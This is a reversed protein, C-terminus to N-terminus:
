RNDHFNRSLVKESMDQKKIQDTKRTQVQLHKRKTDEFIKNVKLRIEKDM